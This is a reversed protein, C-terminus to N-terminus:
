RDPRPAAAGAAPAEFRDRLTLQRAADGGVERVATAGARAMARTRALAVVGLRHVVQADGAAPQDGRHPQPAIENRRARPGEARQAAQAALRALRAIELDVDGQQAM